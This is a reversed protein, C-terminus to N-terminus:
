AQQEKFARMAEDWRRNRRASSEAESVPLLLYANTYNKAKHSAWAMTIKRVDTKMETLVSAAWAGLMEIKACEELSIQHLFLARSLAGAIHLASAEHYLAEANEYVKSAGEALERLMVRSESTPQSPEKSM